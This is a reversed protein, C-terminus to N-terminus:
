ASGLLRNFQNDHPRCPLGPRCLLSPYFICVLLVDPLPASIKGLFEPLKIINSDLTMAYLFHPFVEPFFKGPFVFGPRANSFPHRTTPTRFLGSLLTTCPFGSFRSPTDLLFFICLPPPVRPISREDVCLYFLPLPYLGLLRDHVCSGATETPPPPPPPPQHPRCLRFAGCLDECTKSRSLFFDVLL